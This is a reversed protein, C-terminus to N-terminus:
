KGPIIPIGLFAKVLQIGAWRKVRSLDISDKPESVIKKIEDKKEEIKKAVQLKIESPIKKPSSYLLQLKKLEKKKKEIKKTVQSKLNDVKNKNKTEKDMQKIQSQKYSILNPELYEKALRSINEPSTIVEHDLTAQHLEFKTNDILLRLNSIEKQLNRTENKIASVFIIGAVFLVVPLVVPLSYKKVSNNSSAKPLTSVFRSADADCEKTQFETNMNPLTKLWRNPDMSM